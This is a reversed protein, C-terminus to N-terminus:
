YHCVTSWDSVEYDSCARVVGAPLQTFTLAAIIGGPQLLSWGQPDHGQVEIHGTLLGPTIYLDAHLNAPGIVGNGTYAEIGATQTVPDFWALLKYQVSKAGINGIFNMIGECANPDASGSPLHAYNADTLACTLTYLRAGSPPLIVDAAAGPALMVSHFSAPAITMIAALTDLPAYTQGLALHDGALTVSWAGPLFTDDDATNGTEYNFARFDYTHTGNSDAFTMVVHRPTYWTFSPTIPQNTETPQTYPGGPYQGGTVKFFPQGSATGIVGSQARIQETSAVYAGGVLLNAQNGSTDFTSFIMFLYGNRGEDVFLGSGSQTVDYYMGKYPQIAGLRDSIPGSAQAATAAILALYAVFRSLYKM